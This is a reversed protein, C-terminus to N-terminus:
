AQLIFTLLNQHWSIKLLLKEKKTKEPTFFYGSAQFFALQHTLSCTLSLPHKLTDYRLDSLKQQTMRAVNPRVNDHPLMHGLMTM